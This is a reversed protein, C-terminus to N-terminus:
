SSTSSPQGPGPERSSRLFARVCAGVGITGTALQWAGLTWVLYALGEFVDTGKEVGLMAVGFGSTAVSGVAVVGLQVTTVGERALKFAFFALVGPVGAALALFPGLALFPLASLAFAVGAAYGWSTQWRRAEQHETM